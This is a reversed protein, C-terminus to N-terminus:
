LALCADVYRSAAPLLRGAHHDFFGAATTGPWDGPLLETPLAPDSFLFQRWAHVLQFRAAYADEDSAADGAAEVVPSLDTVFQQYALAVTKLDWARGVLELSGDIGAAHIAHFAEAPTGSEALLAPAEVAPRPAVWVAGDLSGYGFFRLSAYLRARASRDSPARVVLLHWRGDWDGSRTRYIRAAAADLRVTAKPTLAYGPGAALKEPKLWGQRVMRSVATRVAPAAIDLPALLRVLAAIPAAGGRPRVHDGYLDFLASRAQVWQTQCALRM